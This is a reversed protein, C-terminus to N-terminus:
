NYKTIGLVYDKLYEEWQIKTVDLEFIQQDIDEMKRLLAQVNSDLILFQHQTFYELYSSLRLINKLTKMMVPKKGAVWCIVDLIFSPIVHLVLLWMKYSIYNSKIRFRRNTLIHRKGHKVCIDMFHGVDIPNRLGSCCNFIKVGNANKLRSQSTEWAAAILLNAVYDVPIIDLVVSPNGYWIRLLGRCAVAVVRTLGQWGTVWGPMPEKLSSIIISPRVIAAPIDYFEKEIIEETLAKSYTYANPRGDLLNDASGKAKLTDFVTELAIGTKYVKEDIVQKHMNSYASSVYVFVSINQMQKCIAILQETPKTNINIATTMDMNFSLKAAAHFVVSVEQQLISIDNRSIGINDEELNGSIPKIKKMLSPNKDKIRQFATSNLYDFFREETSKGNKRKILIYINNIGNCSFLLKEVLVTGLFGTAGTVFVSRGNYFNVIPSSHFLVEGAAHSNEPM